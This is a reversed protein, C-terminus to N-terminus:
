RYQAGTAEVCRSDRELFWQGKGISYYMGVVYLTRIRLRRIEKSLLKGHERGMEAPTGTRLYCVRQGKSVELRAGPINITFDQPARSHMDDNQIDLARLAGRELSRELEARSFRSKRAANQITMPREAKPSISPTLPTKSCHKRQVAGPISVGGLWLTTM